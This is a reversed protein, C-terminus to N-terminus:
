PNTARVWGDDTRARNVNPESQEGRVVVEVDVASGGALDRLAEDISDLKCWEDRLDASLWFTAAMGLLFVGGIGGSLILPLQDDPNPTDTLRFWGVLLVVAAAVAIVAAAVRDWQTRAWRRFDMQIRETPPSIARM